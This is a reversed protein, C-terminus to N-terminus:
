ESQAAMNTSKYRSMNAMSYLLFCRCTGQCPFERMNEKAQAMPVDSEDSTMGEVEDATPGKEPSEGMQVSEQAVTPSCLSGM